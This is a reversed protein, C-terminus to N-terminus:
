AYLDSPLPGFAKGLVESEDLYLFHYVRRAFRWGTATRRLQDAYLGFNVHGGRAAAPRGIENMTFRATASDGIVTVTGLHTTQVFLEWGGLLTEVARVIADPGVAKVNMPAKIDWVGDETWLSRFLVSDRRNVADSFRGALERIALEDVVTEVAM